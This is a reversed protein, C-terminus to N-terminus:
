LRAGIIALVVDPAIVILGMLSGFLIDDRLMGVVGPHEPAGDPRALLVPAIHL